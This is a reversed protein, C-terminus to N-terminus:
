ETRPVVRLVHRELGSDGRRQFELVSEQLPFTRVSNRQEAPERVFFAM